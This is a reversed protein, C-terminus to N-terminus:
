ASVLSGTSPASPAWVGPSSAVQDEGVDRSAVMVPAGNGESAPKTDGRLPPM